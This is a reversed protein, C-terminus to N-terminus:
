PLLQKSVGLTADSWRLSWEGIQVWYSHEGERKMTQCQLGYMCNIVGSSECAVDHPPVYVYLILFETWQINVFLVVQGVLERRWASGIPDDCTGVHRFYVSM